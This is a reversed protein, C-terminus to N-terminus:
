IVPVLKSMTVLAYRSSRVVRPKKSQTLPKAGIFVVVYGHEFDTVHAKEQAAFRLLGLSILMEKYKEHSKQWSHCGECEFRADAM